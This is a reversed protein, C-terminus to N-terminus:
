TDRSNEEFLCLTANSQQAAKSLAHSVILLDNDSLGGDMQSLAKKTIGIARIWDSPDSSMKLKVEEHQHRNVHVRLQEIKAALTASGRMEEFEPNLEIFRHFSDIVRECEAKYALASEAGERSNVIASASMIAIANLHGMLTDKFIKTYTAASRLEEPEASRGVLYDMSVGYFNSLADFAYLNIPVQNTEMESIKSKNLGTGVAVDDLSYKLQYRVARLTKGVERFLRDQKVSKQIVAM